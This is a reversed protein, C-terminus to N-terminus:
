QHFVEKQIRDWLANLRAMKEMDGGAKDPHLAIAGARYASRMAEYPLLKVFQVLVNDLPSSAIAPPVSAKQTQEKTIVTYNSTGFIKDALMKIPGLYSEPFTWIKTNDDYDRLNGPILLKLSEFFRKDYPSALRYADLAPDYWIKVKQNNAMPPPVGGYKGQYQSPIPLIVHFDILSGCKCVQTYHGPSATYYAGHVCNCAFCEFINPRIELLRQGTKIDTAIIVLGNANAM